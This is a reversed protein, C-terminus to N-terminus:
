LTVVIKGALIADTIQELELAYTRLLSTGKEFIWGSITGKLLEQSPPPAPRNALDILLRTAPAPM